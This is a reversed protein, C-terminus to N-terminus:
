RNNWCNPKRDIRSQVAILRLVYHEVSEIAERSVHQPATGPQETGRAPRWSRAVFPVYGLARLIRAELGPQQRLVSVSLPATGPRGPPALSLAVDSVSLSM